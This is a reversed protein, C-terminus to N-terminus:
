LEEPKSSIIDPLSPDKMATKVKRIAIQLSLLGIAAYILLITVFMKINIYEGIYPEMLLYKYVISSVISTVIIIFAQEIWFTKLLTQETAGLALLIGITRLRRNITFKVERNILLYVVVAGMAAIILLVKNKSLSFNVDSLQAKKYVIKNASVTHNDESNGFIVFQYDIEHTLQHKELFELFKNNTLVLGIGKEFPKLIAKITVPYYTSRLNAHSDKASDIGQRVRIILHAKDGLKKNLQKAANYSLAIGVSDDSTSLRSMDGYLLNKKNFYSKELEYLNHEDVIFLDIVTQPRYVLANDTSLIHAVTTNEMVRFAFGSKPKEDCYAIWDYTCNNLFSKQNVVPVIAATSFMGVISLVPIFLLIKKIFFWPNKKWEALIFKFIFANSM